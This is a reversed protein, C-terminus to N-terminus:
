NSITTWCKNNDPFSIKETKIYLLSKTKLNDKRDIKVSLYYNDSNIVDNEIYHIFWYANIPKNMIEISDILCNNDGLFPLGYREGSNKINYNLKNLIIDDTKIGIIYDINTLIEKTKPNCWNNHGYSMQKLTKIKEQRINIGTAKDKNGGNSPKIYVHQYLSNVLPIQIEGITITLKPLEINFRNDIGLINLILGYASTPTIIHESSHYITKQFKRFAAFPAQIRLWTTEM